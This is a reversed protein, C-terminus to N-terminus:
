SASPSAGSRATPQDEAVTSFTRDVAHTWFAGGAPVLGTRGDETATPMPADFARVGAPAQEGFTIALPPTALNLASTLDTALRRWDTM